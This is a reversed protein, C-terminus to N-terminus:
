GLAIALGLSTGGGGSATSAITVEVEENSSDDTVSITVNSGAIFRVARRTGTASVDSGNFVAVRSNTDATAPDSVRAANLTASSAANLVGILQDASLDSVNGTGVGAARGKVTALTTQQLKDNALSNVGIGTEGFVSFM